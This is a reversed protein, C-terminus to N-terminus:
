GTKRLEKDIDAETVPGRVYDWLGLVMGIGWGGLVWGPWFYGRGSVAWIGILFANVVVYAVFGGQLNRRKEVRKRAQARATDGTTEVSQLETMANGGASGPITQGEEDNATAAVDELTRPGM